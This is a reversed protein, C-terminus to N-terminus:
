KTKWNLKKNLQLGVLESCTNIILHIVKKYATQDEQKRSNVEQEMFLPHLNYSQRLENLYLLATYEFAHEQILGWRYQDSLHIIAAIGAVLRNDTIVKRIAEDLAEEPQINDPFLEKYYSKIKEATIGYRKNQWELSAQRITDMGSQKKLAERVAQKVSRGILEGLIAHKGAMYLKLEASPNSVTIIGDTGSGTALDESYMSNAQLEQLVATKAETATVIARTQVGPSLNANILLIINITGAFPTIVENIFENFGAPDGARGANHDIGATVIATVELAQYKLSVIVNNEIRAATSLGCTKDAPLHLIKALERFHEELNAGRMKLNNTREFERICSHNFVYELDNRCGGNCDATSVVHRTDNFHIILADEGFYVDDGMSTIFFDKM